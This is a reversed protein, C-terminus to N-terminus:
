GGALAREEAALVDPSAEDSYYDGPATEDVGAPAHVLRLVLTLVVAVLVNLLLATAAIYVKTHPSRSSRSRRASTGCATSAHHGASGRVLRTTANPVTQRYAEVTGYVM